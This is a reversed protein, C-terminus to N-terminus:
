LRQLGRRFSQMAPQDFLVFRVERLREDETLFQWCCRLALEAARDMPFRYAGTSLSPFAISRCGHDAALELSCRYASELLQDEHRSGGSWVPGVAHIIYRASLQGASSIVASGTPCGQPYRRRTEEMISAGGRRHIAGDVGGGGALHRNAANVMADVVQETIDGLHLQLVRQGAEDAAVTKEVLPNM